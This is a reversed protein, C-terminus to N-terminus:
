QQRKYFLYDFSLDDEEGGGLNAPEGFYEPIEPFWTDCEYEKHIRTLYIGDAIGKEVSQKYVSAGGMIFINEVNEDAKSLAEDMNSCFTVGSAGHENDRTLVVNKRNKLPRHKEPISIWTTKGMVVMNQKKPDSTKTTVEQFHRLEDKLNWPMKGNRGIGLNEDTAVIIYIKHTM